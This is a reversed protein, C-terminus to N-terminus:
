KLDYKAMLQEGAKAIKASKSTILYPAISQQTTPMIKNLYPIIFTLDRQRNGSVIQILFTDLAPNKDSSLKSAIWECATQTILDHQAIWSPVVDTQTMLPFNELLLEQSIVSLKPLVQIIMNYDIKIEQAIIKSVM